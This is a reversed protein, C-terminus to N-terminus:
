GNCKREVYPKVYRITDSVLETCEREDLAVGEYYKSGKPIEFVGIEYTGSKHLWLPVESYSHFGDLAVWYRIVPEFECRIETHPVYDEENSYPHNYHMSRFTGCEDIFGIKYVTRDEEMVMPEPCAGEVCEKSGKIVLCM